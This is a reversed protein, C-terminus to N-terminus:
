KFAQDSGDVPMLALSPASRVILAILLANVFVFFVLTPKGEVPVDFMGATIYILTVSLGSVAVTRVFPTTAKRYVVWYFRFVAGLLMCLLILGVLGRTALASFYQNHSHYYKAAISNVKGEESLKQAYNQYSGVGVGFLPNDLFIEWSARWMELRAGTSTSRQADNALESAMYLAIDSKAQEIRENVIPTQIAVLTIAILFLGVGIRYKNQWQRLYLSFLFIIVVLLAVWSGRSLTLLTAFLTLLSMAFFLSAVQRDDRWYNIGILFTVAFLSACIAGYEIPNMGGAARGGYEINPSILSDWIGYAGFVLATAFVLISFRRKNIAYNNQFALIFLVPILFIWVVHRSWLLNNGMRTQEGLYFTIVMWLFNVLSIILAAKLLPTLTQWYKAYYPFTIIALICSVGLISFSLKTLPALAMLGLFLLIWFSLDIIKKRNIVNFLFSKTIM